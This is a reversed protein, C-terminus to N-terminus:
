HQKLRTRKKFVIVSITAILFLLLIIGSPFEPISDINQEVIIVYSDANSVIDMYFTGNFGNIYLIGNTEETGSKVISGVTVSYTEEEDSQRFSPPIIPGSEVYAHTQVHISFATLNPYEAYPVYEWKVRWENYECTFLPSEGFKPAYGTLRALEVWNGFSANIVNVTIVPTFLCLLLITIPKRKEM